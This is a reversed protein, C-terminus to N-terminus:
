ETKSVTVNWGGGGVGVGLIPLGLCNPVSCSPGQLPFGAAGVLLSAPRAKQSAISSLWGSGERRMIQSRISLPGQKIHTVGPLVLLARSCLQVLDRACSEETRRGSWSRGELRLEFRSSRAPHPPQCWALLLLM